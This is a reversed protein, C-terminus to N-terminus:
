KIVLGRPLTGQRDVPHGVTLAKEWQGCRMALFFTTLVVMALDNQKFCEPVRLYVEVSQVLGM